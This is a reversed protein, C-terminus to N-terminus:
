LSGKNVIDFIGQVPFSEVNLAVVGQRIRIWQSLLENYQNIREALERVYQLSQEYQPSGAPIESLHRIESRMRDIYPLCEAVVQCCTKRALNERKNSEAHLRYLYHQKEAQKLRDAQGVLEDANRLAAKLYPAVTNLVARNDRSARKGGWSAEIEANENITIQEAGTLELLEPVAIRNLWEIIDEGAPAPRLIRECLAVTKQMMEVYKRNAANIRKHFLLIFIILLAIAAAVAYLMGKLRLNSKKLLITRAEYRRDLRINKQLELYVTRNYDSALKDNLGSYALSMQERLSAM